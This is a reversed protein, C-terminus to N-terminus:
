GAQGEASRRSAEAIARAERVAAALALAAEASSTRVDASELADAYGDLARAIAQHTVKMAGKAAEAVVSELLENLDKRSIQILDEAEDPM